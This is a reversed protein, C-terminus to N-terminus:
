IEYEVETNLLSGCKDCSMWDLIKITVFVLDMKDYSFTNKFKREYGCKPCKIIIRANILGYGETILSVRLPGQSEM